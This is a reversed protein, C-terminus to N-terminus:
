GPEGDRKTKEEASYMFVTFDDTAYDDILRVRPSISRCFSLIRERDQGELLDYPKFVDADLMNFAVGVTAARYMKAIMDTFYDPDSRGYAFAGSAVVYDVTPLELRGFDARFFSTNASGEYRRRAEEVFEPVHDVGIYTIDSFREDLYTRLDGYGCGLDLVSSGSLDGVRAIVDFRGLQSAPARWGLAGLTGGGFQAIRRRHFQVIRARELM